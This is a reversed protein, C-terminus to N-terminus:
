ALLGGNQGSLIQVQNVVQTSYVTNVTYQAFALRTTPNVVVSASQVSMIGYCGAIFSTLSTNLNKQQGTNLLGKWNLWPNLSAFFDGSWMLVSTQLNLAIAQTQSAYNGLGAGFTWDGSSTLQRFTMNSTNNAM